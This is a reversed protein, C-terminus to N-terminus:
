AAKRAKRRQVFALMGLGAAMMAWTDAEPVASVTLVDQSSASSFRTYSYTNAIANNTDLAYSLMSQANSFVAASNGTYSSKLALAGSLLNSDDNNLEWLALQFGAVLAKNQGPNAAFQTYYGEYLRKVSNSANFSGASYDTSAVSMAQSPEICFALFTNSNFSVTWAPVTLAPSANGFNGGAATLILTSAGANGLVPAAAQAAGALILSAAAVAAARLVTNFTTKM